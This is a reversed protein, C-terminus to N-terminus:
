QIRQLTFDGLEIKKRAPGNLLLTEFPTQRFRRYHVLWTNAGPRRSLSEQWSENTLFHSSGLLRCIGADDKLQQPSKPLVYLVRRGFYFEMGPWYRDMYVMEAGEETLRKAIPRMSSNLKLRTELNSGALGIGAILVAYACLGWKLSRDFRATNTRAQMAVLARAAILAFWPALILIYTPLKSSLLSFVIMGTILLIGEVGVVRRWNGSALKRVPRGTSWWNSLLIPWWPLWVVFALLVHYFPNGRRGDAHGTVRGVLERHFFFQQLDPHRHLMTLFWPSGLAVTCLLLRFPRLSRADLPDRSTWCAIALGLMPILAPTAKTWWALSWFLLSVAWFGLHGKRHRAEAWAGVAMTCFGTLLMDPSLFKALVWVHALTGGTIIAWRATTRDYLRLATWWLGALMLAAGILSPLRAAYENQGLLRFAGATFWYILPPKDYHGFDSMRPELWDAGPELFGLAINAYRGEDPENLGRTGYGATLFVALALVIMWTQVCM